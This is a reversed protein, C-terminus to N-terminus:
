FGVLVIMNVILNKFRSYTMHNFEYPYFGVLITMIVILNEFRSNNM